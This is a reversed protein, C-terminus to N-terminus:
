ISMPTHWICGKAPCTCRLGERQLRDREAIYEEVEHLRKRIREAMEPTIVIETM